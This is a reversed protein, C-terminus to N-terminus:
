NYGPNQTLNPNASFAGEPIPFRNLYEKGPGDAPHDWWAETTFKGFRILDSRRRGESIFEILWEDLFRYDNLNVATVPNPDAGNVFYRARVQNILAAAEGKNGARYKCEALMYKIETFRIVPIDNTKWLVGDKANPVPSYKMIRVGSNEEAYMAGEKRGDPYRPKTSGDPNIIDPGLQGIQDPMPITDGAPYERSGDAVCAAGTLPNILKGALFMGEYKGDGLYLYNKKRLDTAEFKAYPSGLKYTGKSSPNPSGPVYSKGEIDLSPVLCLGNWSMAEANDFYAWTGYHTSYNRNGSEFGRYSPDSAIAWILEDSAENGFGWIEQFSGAQAYTGYVGNILDECIKATETYMEKGIYAKANFYLRALLSAAVGQTIIQDQRDGIKRKPLTSLANKLLGEIFEFTEVDTARGKLDEQNSKYIPVGGFHDLAYSYYFAVLVNLQNLMSERTGSPFGVADFDVYKDIDEIASYVHAVGQAYTDWGYTAYSETGPSFLHYFANLFFGDDYWDGGRNPMLIEDTTGIQMFTLRGYPINAMQGAWHAFPRAFRAYIKDQSDFFGSPEAQSYYEPEVNCRQFSIAAFLLTSIIFLNKRKM